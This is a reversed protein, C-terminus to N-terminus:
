RVPRLFEVDCDPMYASSGPGAFTLTTVSFRPSERAGFVAAFEALDSPMYNGMSPAGLVAPLVRYAQTGRNREAVTMTVEGVRFLLERLKGAKSLSCRMTWFIQDTSSPLQVTNGFRVRSQMLPEFRSFRPQARRELLLTRSGLMRTDYWRYVERWMAPTETWAHRGDITKGDFLLFRPGRDRVWDANLEDLYPTYASYRQLVPYLVLNLDDIVANSFTISLSSVPEQQVIARIAPEMRLEPPFNQVADVDLKQRLKTFRLAHWALGPTRAGTMGLITQKLGYHGLNDQCLVAFILVAIAFSLNVRQDDLVVVLSVLGLAIAVFGFLHFVHTDQRVFGHKLNVLVPVVLILALFSAIRRNQRVLVALGIAILAMSEFAAVLEVVPGSTSMALSYGSSLELAAKLYLVAGALSRATFTYGVATILAPLLIALASESWFKQGKNVIRDTLLGAVLGASVMAGVFEILPILGIMILATVYRVMGGRLQFQVLLILAGLLLLDGSGMAIPYLVGSLAICAAFFGLNRWATGSRFFVDWLIILLLIWLATQFALGEALDHGINMPLALFALPGATWVINRGIVLHHAAAYNLAFFWTNDVDPALAWYQIPCIVCAVFSFLFVRAISQYPNVIRQVFTNLM